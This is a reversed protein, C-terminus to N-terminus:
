LSIQIKESVNIGPRDVSPRHTETKQETRRVDTPRPVSMVRLVYCTRLARRPGRHIRSAFIAVALFLDTSSFVKLKRHNRSREYIKTCQIGLNRSRFSNCAIVLQFLRLQGLTASNVKPM